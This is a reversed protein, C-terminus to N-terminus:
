AALPTEESEEHAVEPVVRAISMELDTAATIDPSDARTRSLDALEVAARRAVGPAAARGAAAVVAVVEARFPCAPLLPILETPEPLVEPALPFQTPEQRLGKRVSSFPAEVAVALAKEEAASQGVVAAPRSWTTLTEPVL